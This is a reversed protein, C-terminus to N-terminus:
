QTNGINGGISATGGTAKAVSAASEIKKVPQQQAKQGTLKSGQGKPAPQPKGNFTATM